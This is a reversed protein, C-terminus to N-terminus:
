ARAVLAGAAHFVRSVGRNSGFEPAGAIRNSSLFFPFPFNPSIGVTGLTFRHLDHVGTMTSGQEGVTVVRDGLHQLADAVARLSEPDNGHTVPQSM